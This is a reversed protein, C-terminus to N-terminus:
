PKEDLVAPEPAGEAFKGGEVGVGLGGEDAAAEGGEAPLIEKFWEGLSKDRDDSWGRIVEGPGGVENGIERIDDIRGNCRM